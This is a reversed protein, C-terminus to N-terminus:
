TRAFVKGAREECLGLLELRVLANALESADLGTLAALEDFQVPRRGLAEWVPELEGPVKARQQAPALRPPPADSRVNLVKRTGPVSLGPWDEGEIGLAWAIPSLGTCARAMNNELLNNVGAALKATVDGPVAFVPRHVEIAAMATGLSGSEADARVVLTVDALAAIVRNRIKFNQPPAPTGPPFHSVVAGGSLVIRDFLAGNERPYVVDVGSGLVAITAGPQDFAATHAAADVGRAGGSVVNVGRESLGAAFFAALQLGYADSDRSGVIAVRHAGPDIQGKVYLLPPFGLGELQRPWEPRGQFIVKAGVKEAKELIRDALSGPDQVKLWNERILDNHLYPAVERAPQRLAETLSGFAKKLKELTKAGIGEVSFFALTAREEATFPGERLPEAVQEAARTRGARPRATARHPKSKKM